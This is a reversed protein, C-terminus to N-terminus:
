KSVIGQLLGSSEQSPAHHVEPICQEALSKAGTNSHEVPKSTLCINCSRNLLQTYQVAAKEVENTCFCVKPGQSVYALDLRKKEQHYLTPWASEEEKSLLM